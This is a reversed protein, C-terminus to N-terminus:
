DLDFLLSDVDPCKGERGGGGGGGERGRSGGVPVGAAAAAAATIGAASTVTASPSVVETPSVFSTASALSPSRVTSVAARGKVCNPQERGHPPCIPASRVAGIPTLTLGEEDVDYLPHSSIPKQMTRAAAAAAVACPITATGAVM